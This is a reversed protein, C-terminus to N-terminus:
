ILFSQIFCFSFSIMKDLFVIGSLNNNYQNIIETQLTIQIFYIFIFCFKMIRSSQFGHVSLFSISLYNYLCHEIITISQNNKLRTIYTPTWHISFFLNSVVLAYLLWLQFLNSCCFRHRVSIYKDYELQENEKDDGTM